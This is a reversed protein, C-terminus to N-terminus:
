EVFFRLEGLSQILYDAGAEVLEDRGRFGTILGCSKMGASKAASIDIKSDGVMLCGSSEVECLRAAELLPHPAPKREPMSDGGIVTIFHSMIGLGQLIGLTLDYPKNTVVAKPLHAFYALTEEAEPYLVTQDLFHASYHQRFSEVARALLKEDTERGNSAFLSRKVLLSVGEGVFSVITSSALAPRNLDALMLNIGTALDARSDILTGDLDFLLCDFRM